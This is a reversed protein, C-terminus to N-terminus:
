PSISATVWLTGHWSARRRRAKPAESSTTAADTGSKTFGV